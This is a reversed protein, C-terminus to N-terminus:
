SCSGCCVSTTEKDKEAEEKAKETVTEQTLEHALNEEKSDPNASSESM